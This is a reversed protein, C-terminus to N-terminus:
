PTQPCSSGGPRDQKGHIYYLKGGPPFGRKMERAQLWPLAAMAERTKIAVGFDTFWRWVGCIATRLGL